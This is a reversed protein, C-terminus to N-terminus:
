LVVLDGHDLYVVGVAPGAPRAALGVGDVGEGGGCGDEGAPGGPRGFGAVADHFCDAGQPNHAARGHFGSRLGDILDAGEDDGCGVLDAFLQAGQGWGFQDLVQGAGTRAGLGALRGARDLDGQSSQGAAVLVEGRLDAIGIGLQFGQHGLCSTANGPTPMSVAACSRIVAPSLGSLNVESADKAWRHATAGMGALKPRVFLCRRLRPPSRRALWESWM